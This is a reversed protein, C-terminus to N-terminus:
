NKQQTLADRIQSLLQIEESPGPAEVPTEQKRRLENIVKVAIFIVFAIITFDLISQIFAGYSLLLAPVTEKGDADLVAPRLILSLSKFSSSGIVYSVAPMILDNVLSTVIKGFAGGIVVGVALDIVNGRIAFEKFESIISM